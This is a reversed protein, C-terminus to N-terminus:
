EGRHTLLVAASDTLYDVFLSKNIHQLNVPKPSLSAQILLWAKWSILQTFWPLISWRKTSSNGRRFISIIIGVEQTSPPIFHSKTFWLACPRAHLSHEFINADTITQINGTQFCQLSFFRKLSPSQPACNGPSSKLDLLFEENKQM